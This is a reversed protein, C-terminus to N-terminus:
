DPCFLIAVPSPTHAVAGTATLTGRDPDRRFTVITDSDQNAALLWAGSPDLAFNRPTRGRTPEHGVSTLEGSADDVAWVAISDHGRNSGYVFRGDPAVVVHACSNDIRPGDIGAPLTSVTQRPHLEGRAGDYVYVSLTSALENLVYLSRGDPAFAFHRPGAGPAEMVFNTGHENPVLRGSEADLRYLMVRDSGLDSVLVYRGDPTPAIMHPHAGQQEPRPGAGAHRVVDSAPELSGDAAVPLVAVTGGTYNAVLAYRGSPDLGIYCPDAGHSTPSNLLRVEGTEPDRAFASVTGESLENVAYLRTRGANLALFSPNAVGAVTRLHRLDGSAPNFQFVSIGEAKGGYSPETYAGVYVFM